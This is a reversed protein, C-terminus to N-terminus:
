AKVSSQRSSKHLSGEMMLEAGIGASHIAAQIHHRWDFPDHNYLHLPPWKTAAATPGVSLLQVMHILESNSPCGWAQISGNINLALQTLM